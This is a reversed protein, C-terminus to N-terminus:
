PSSDGSVNNKNTYPQSTMHTRAHTNTYSQSVENTSYNSQISYTKSVIGCLCTRAARVCVCACLTPPIPFLFTSRLLASAKNRYSSTTFDAKAKSMKFLENKQLKEGKKEIATHTHARRPMTATEHTFKKQTQQFHIRVRQSTTPM